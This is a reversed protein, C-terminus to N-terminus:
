RRWRRYEREMQEDGRAAACGLAFIVIYGIVIAAIPITLSM